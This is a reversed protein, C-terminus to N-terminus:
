VDIDGGVLKDLVERQENWIDLLKNRLERGQESVVYYKRPKNEHIEWTSELMGKAELRRLLPYLSNEEVQYGIRDLEKVVQYGYCREELLVLTVLQIFGRNMEKGFSELNM